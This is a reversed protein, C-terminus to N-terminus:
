YESNLAAWRDLARGVFTIDEANDIKLAEAGGGTQLTKLFEQPSDVFWAYAKRATELDGVQESIAGLNYHGALSKPNKALHQKLLAIAESQRGLDALVQA